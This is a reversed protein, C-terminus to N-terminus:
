KGAGEARSQKRRQADAKKEKPGKPPKVKSQSRRYGKPMATSKGKPPHRRDWDDRDFAFDAVLTVGTKRCGHCFGIAYRRDMQHYNPDPEGRDSACNQCVWFKAQRVPPIAIGDDM